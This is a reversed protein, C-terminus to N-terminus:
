TKCQSYTRCLFALRMPMVLRARGFGTISSKRNGLSLSVQRKRREAVGWGLAYINGNLEYRQAREGQLYNILYFSLSYNEASNLCAICALVSLRPLM